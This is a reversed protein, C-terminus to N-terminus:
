QQLMFCTADICSTLSVFVIDFIVFVDIYQTTTAHCKDDEHERAGERGREVGGERGGEM